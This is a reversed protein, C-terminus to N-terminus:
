ILTKVSQVTGVSAGTIKALKRISLEPHFQIEKVVNKYKWLFESESISFERERGRPVRYTFVM